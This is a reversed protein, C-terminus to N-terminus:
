QVLEWVRKIVRMSIADPHEPSYDIAGEYMREWEYDWLSFTNRINQGISNHYRILDNANTNKFAIQEAETADENYWQIVKLAMEEDTPRTKM